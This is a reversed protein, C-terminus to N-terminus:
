YVALAMINALIMFTDYSIRLSSVNIRYTKKIESIGSYVTFEYGDINKTVEIQVM